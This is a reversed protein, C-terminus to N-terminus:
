WGILSYSPAAARDETSDLGIPGSTSPLSPAGNSAAPPEITDVEPM